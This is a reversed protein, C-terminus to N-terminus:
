KIIVFFALLNNLMHVLMGAYLAGTRERLYVLVISLLFTDIAAAWVLPTGGGLQLHAAGFILSTILLAPIFRMVKRLGSYLYGRVLIEEGLPPILVLSIFAMATELGNTLHDFGVNQKQNTLDPSVANIILSATILLVYFTGFGLAAKVVDIKNPRRGLGIASLGLGRKKVIRFVLLAALGEAILIYVFQAAVSNDLSQHSNPHILALGLEAIFAAVVQSALFILLTTLILRAPGGLNKTPVKNSKKRPDQRKLGVGGGDEARIEPKRAAPAGGEADGWTFFRSRM